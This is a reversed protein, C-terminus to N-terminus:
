GEDKLHINRGDASFLGEKEMKAKERMMASRDTCIYDALASYSFPLAFDDKGNLTKQIQLYSWIKERITRRSLVEIRESLRVAKQQMLSFMNEVLHSHHACAKECRKTIQDYPIFAVEAAKECRVWVRDTMSGSFALMQVFVSNEDLNELVTEEGDRDLRLLVAEGSLVIGVLNQDVGYEYVTQGPHFLQTTVGFCDYMACCSDDSIGSFLSIKSFDM